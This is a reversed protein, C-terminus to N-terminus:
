VNRENAELTVVVIEAPNFLRFKGLGASVIMKAKNAYKNCSYVGKTYKPFFKREPSLIGGLLPLRVIGGHCHGSFTLDAGWEAYAEFPFPTHALLMNFRVKEAKGLANGVDRVKMEPLNRYRGDDNKYYKREVELGYVNIYEEGVFLRAQSNRLIHVGAQELKYYLAEAREPTEVEHNGPIYYVPALEKLLKMLLPKDSISKEQRSYLDGTFFIYDPKVARCADVLISYNEGFREQHLDSLHLIKKGSFADPLRDSKITYETTDLRRNAKMYHKDKLRFLFNMLRQTIGM